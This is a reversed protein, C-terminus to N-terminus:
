GTVELYDPYMLLLGGENLHESLLERDPPVTTDYVIIDYMGENPLTDAYDGMIFNWNGRRIHEPFERRAINEVIWPEIEYIDICGWKRLNLMRTLYCTGCGMLAIRADPAPNHNVIDILWDAFIQIEPGSEDAIPEKHGNFHLKYIFRYPDKRYCFYEQVERTTTKFYEIAM